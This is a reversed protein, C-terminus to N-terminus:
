NLKLQVGIGIIERIQLRAISNDDYIFQMILQTTLFSNVDLDIEVLYDLDVNALNDLYNSFLKLDQKYNVNELLKGESHFTLNAGLEYRLGKDKSIM